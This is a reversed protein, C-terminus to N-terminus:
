TIKDKTRKAFDSLMKNYGEKHKLFQSEFESQNFPINYYDFLSNLSIYDIDDEKIVEFEHLRDAIDYVSIDVFIGKLINLLLNIHGGNM